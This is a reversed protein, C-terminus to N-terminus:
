VGSFRVYVGGGIFTKKGCSWCLDENLLNVVLDMLVYAVWYLLFVIFLKESWVNVSSSNETTVLLMDKTGLGVLVKLCSIVSDQFLNLVRMNVCYKKTIVNM